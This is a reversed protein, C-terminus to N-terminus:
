AIVIKRHPRELRRVEPDNTPTFSTGSGDSIVVAPQGRMSLNRQVRRLLAGRLDSPYVAGVRCMRRQADTETGLADAIEADTYSNAGLYGLDDPDERDASAGRLDALTPMGAGATAALVYAVYDAAGYGTAVARAVYRGATAPVYAARYCGTGVREVTPSATGAAPTTVTVVPAVADTLCGDLDRVHAVIVWVGSVPLETIQVDATVSM